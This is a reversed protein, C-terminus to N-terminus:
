ILLGRTQGQRQDQVGGFFYIFKIAPARLAPRFALVTREPGDGYLNMLGDVKITTDCYYMMNTVTNAPIYVNTKFYYASTDQINFGADIARQILPTNNTYGSASGYAPRIYDAKVGFWLASIYGNVGIINKVNITTDFIQEYVGAGILGGVVKSVFSNTGTIRSGNNFILRKGSPVTVTGAVKIRANIGDFHIEPINSLGLLTNILSTNDTTGNGSIGLVSMSLPDFTGGGGGGTGVEIWKKPNCARSWLKNSAYTYILAGCSDVGLTNNATLTDAYRPLYFNKNVQLKDDAVTNAPGARQVIRQSFSTIFSGVLLVIFALKKM